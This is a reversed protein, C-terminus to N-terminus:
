LSRNENSDIDNSVDLAYGFFFVTVIESVTEITRSPLSLISSKEPLQAEPAVSQGAGGKANLKQRGVGVKVQLPAWLGVQIRHQCITPDVM